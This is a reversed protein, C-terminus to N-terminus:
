KAIYSRRLVTNGRGADRSEVMLSKDNECKASELRNGPTQGVPQAGGPGNDNVARGPNVVSPSGLAGASFNFV